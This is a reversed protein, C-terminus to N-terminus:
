YGEFVFEAKVKRGKVWAFGRYRLLTSDRNENGAVPKPPVEFYWLAFGEAEKGLFTLWGAHLHGFPLAPARGLPDIVVGLSEADTRSVARRLNPPQCTFAAEPLRSGWNANVSLLDTLIWILVVPWALAVVSILLLASLEDRWNIGKSPIFTSLLEQLWHKSTRTRNLWISLMRLLYLVGLGTILYARAWEWTLFDTM